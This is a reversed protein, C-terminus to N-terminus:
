PSALGMHSEFKKRLTFTYYFILSLLILEFVCFLVLLEPIMQKEVPELFLRFLTFGAVAYFLLVFLSNPRTSVTVATDYREGTITGNIFAPSREIWTLRILAWQHWLKFQSGEMEGTLNNNREGWPNNTILSLKEKLDDISKSTHYIYKRTFFLNM